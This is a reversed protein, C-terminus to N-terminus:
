EKNIWGLLSAIFAPKDAVKGGAHTLSGTAADIISSQPKSALNVRTLAQACAATNDKGVSKLDLAATAGASAGSHCGLCGNKQLAPVASSTFAEVSKCGGAAAPVGPVDFVMSTAVPPAARTPREASAPSAAAGIATGLFLTTALFVIPRM